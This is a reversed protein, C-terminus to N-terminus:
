KDKHFVPEPATPIYLQNSLNPIAARLQRMDKDSTDIFYWKKGEDMSIAILTGQIDLRGTKTKLDIHQQVTCQLEKDKRIPETPSDFTINQIRLGKNSLERDNKGLLDMMAREGGGMKVVAPYNYKLFASYDKAVLHRGMTDAQALLTKHYLSTDAAQANCIIALMSFCIIAIIHKM